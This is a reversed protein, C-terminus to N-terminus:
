QDCSILCQRHRGLAARECVRQDKDCKILDIANNAICIGFCVPNSGLFVCGILCAGFFQEAAVVCNTSFALCVELDANLTSECATECQCNITAPPRPTEPIEGRTAKSLFEAAQLADELLETTQVIQAGHYALDDVLVVVVFAGRDLEGVLLRTTLFDLAGQDMTSRVADLNQSGAFLSEEFAPLVREFRERVSALEMLEVQRIAIPEGGSSPYLVWVDSGRTPESFRALDQAVAPIAALLLAVAIVAFFVLRAGGRAVPVPM